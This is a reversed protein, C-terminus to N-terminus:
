IWSRRRGPEGRRSFPEPDAVRNRSGRNNLSDKNSNTDCLLESIGLREVLPCESALARYVVVGWWNSGGTSVVCLPVQGSGATLCGEGSEWATSVRLFSVFVSRSSTGVTIKPLKRLTASKQFPLPFTGLGLRPSSWVAGGSLLSSEMGHLSANVWPYASPIGGPLAADGTWRGSGLGSIELGRTNLCTQVPEFGTAHYVLRQRDCTRKWIM